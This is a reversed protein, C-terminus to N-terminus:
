RMIFKFCFIIVEASPSSHKNAKNRIRWQVVDNKSLTTNNIPFVQKKDNTTSAFRGGLIIQNDGSPSWQFYAVIEVLECDYPIILFPSQDTFLLKENAKKKILYQTYLFHFLHMLQIVM